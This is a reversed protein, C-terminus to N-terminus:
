AYDEQLLRAIQERPRSTRQAQPPGYGPPVVLAGGEDYWDDYRAQNLFTAAHPCLAADRYGRRVSEGMVAAVEVARKRSAVDLRAWRKAALPKAQRNPYARWFADFAAASDDVLEGSLAEIPALELSRTQPTPPHEQEKEARTKSKDEMTAGRRVPRNGGQTCAQQTPAAQAAAEARGTAQTRVPRAPAYRGWAECDPAVALVQPETFRAERVVEVVGAARLQALARQLHGRNRGTMRELLSLSIPADRRGYDGYTRRIVALVIEKHVGPMPALLVADFLEKPFAVYPRPEAGAM